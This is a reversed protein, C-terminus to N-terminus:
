AAPFQDYEARLQHAAVFGVDRRCGDVARLPRIDPSAARTLSDVHM